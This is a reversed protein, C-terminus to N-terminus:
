NQVLTVGHQAVHQETMLKVLIHALTAGPNKLSM